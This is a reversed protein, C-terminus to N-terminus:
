RPVTITHFKFSFFASPYAQEARLPPLTNRTCVHCLRPLAGSHPHTNVVTVLSYITAGRPGQATVDDPRWGSFWKDVSLRESFFLALSFSAGPWLKGFLALSGSEEILRLADRLSVSQPFHSFGKCRPTM